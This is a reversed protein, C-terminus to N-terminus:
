VFSSSPTLLPTSLINANVFFLRLCFIPTSLINADVFTLRPCFIPTSLIFADVFHQSQCFIPTSLIYSDVFHQRMRLLTEKSNHGLLTHLLQWVESINEEKHLHQGRRMCDGLTINGSAEGSIHAM